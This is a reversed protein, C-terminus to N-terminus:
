APSVPQRIITKLREPATRRPDSLYIEHHKHRRGDFSRGHEHLFAHLAAITPGEASYPGVYLVQAAPGETFRELRLERALPLQKTQAVQQVTQEVLQPTVQAPQRIMMTWDWDAKRQVSFQAMDQAWWLGELPAVRWDLGRQKKLAFKLTYSVAYLAQLAQQYRESHNPDGHGDIMLFSLEPVEVLEPTRRARYLRQLEPEPDTDPNTVTTM